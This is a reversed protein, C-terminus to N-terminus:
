PQAGSSDLPKSDLAESDLPTNAKDASEIQEIAKVQVSKLVDSFLADAEDNGEGVLEAEIALSSKAGIWLQAIFIRPADSIKDYGVLGAQKYTEEARYSQETNKVDKKRAMASLTSQMVAENYHALNAASVPNCLARIIVRSSASYYEAYRAQSYCNEQNSDCRKTETPPSPFTIEFECPAPSYTVAPSIKDQALAPATFLLLALLIRIV